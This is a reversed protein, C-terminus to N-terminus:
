KPWIVLFHIQESLEVNRKSMTRKSLRATDFCERYTYCLCIVAHNARKQSKKNHMQQLPNSSENTLSVFVDM